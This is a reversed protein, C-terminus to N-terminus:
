LTDVKTQPQKSWKAAMRYRIADLPSILFKLLFISIIISIAGNIIGNSLPDIKIHTVLLCKAVIFIVFHHVLYVPYSLEGIFRDIKSEKFFDFFIPIALAWGIYSLLSITRTGWISEAQRTACVALTLGLTILIVQSSYGPLRERIYHNVQKIRNYAGALYSRAALMGLIFLALEFPFFRNEFGSPTDGLYNYTYIRAFVSLMLISVLRFNSLAALFPVMLYFSLELGITWAQPILLYRYLPASTEGAAATLTLAGDKAHELFYVGDIGLLTINTSAAILVGLLGNNKLADPYARLEALNDFLITCGLSGIMVFALVFWYPIFIRMFRSTYFSRISTYKEHIYQMYFGSIVFFIQVAETGNHTPWPFLETWHASVVCLALYLRFYGM